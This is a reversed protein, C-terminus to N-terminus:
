YFFPLTAFTLQLIANISILTHRGRSFWTNDAILAISYKSNYWLLRRKEDPQGVAERPKLFFFLLLVYGFCLVIM